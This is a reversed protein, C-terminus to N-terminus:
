VIYEKSSINKKVKNHIFAEMRVKKWRVKPGLRVKLIATQHTAASTTPKHSAEVKAAIKWHVGILKKQFL